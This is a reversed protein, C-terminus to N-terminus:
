RDRTSAPEAAEPAAPPTRFSAIQKELEAQEPVELAANCAKATLSWYKYQATEIQKGGLTAGKFMFGRIVPAEKRSTKSSCFLTVFKKLKPVYLLFEIGYMAGSDKVESLDMTEKFRKDNVDHIVLIAPKTQMAKSRWDCVIVDIEKGIDTFNGNIVLAYTNIPFEGSKCKEAAATMYSIYPLYKGGSSALEFAKDDQTAPLNSINILEQSVVSSGQIM